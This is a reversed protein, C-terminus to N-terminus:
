KPSRAAACEEARRKALKLLQDRVPGEDASEARMEYSTAEDCAALRADGHTISSASPVVVRAAWAGREISPTVFAVDDKTFFIAGVITSVLTVGLGIAVLVGGQDKAGGAISAVGTGTLVAGSAGGPVRDEGNPRWKSM